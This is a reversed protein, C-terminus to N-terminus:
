TVINNNINSSNDIIISDNINNNDIISSIEIIISNSISFKLQFKVCTSVSGHQM